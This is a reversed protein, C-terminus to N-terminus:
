RVEITERALISRSQRLSYRVEHTGPKDPLKRAPL